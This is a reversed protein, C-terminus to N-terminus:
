THFNKSKYLTAYIIANLLPYISIIMPIIWYLHNYYEQTFSFFGLQLNVCYIILLLQVFILTALLISVSSNYSAINKKYPNLAYIITTIAPIILAVALGIIFYKVSFNYYSEANGNMIAFTAALIAVILSFSIWNRVMKIKNTQVYTKTNKTEKVLKTHVRVDLGQKKFDNVLKEYGPKEQNKNIFDQTDFVNDEVTEEPSEEHLESAKAINTLEHIREKHYTDTYLPHLVTYNPESEYLKTYKPQEDQTAVMNPERPQIERSDSTTEEITEDFSNDEPIDENADSTVASYDFVENEDNYNTEYENDQNDESDFANSTIDAEDTNKNIEEGFSLYSPTLDSNDEENAFSEEENTSQQSNDDFAYVDRKDEEQKNDNFPEELIQEDNNIEPKSESLGDIKSYPESSSEQESNSDFYSKNSLYSEIDLNYDDVLEPTEPKQTSETKGIENKEEDSMSLYNKAFQELFANGLYASAQENESSEELEKIKSDVQDEPQQYHGLLAMIDDNQSEHESDATNADKSVNEDSKEDSWLVFQNNATEDITPLPTTLESQEKNSAPESNDTDWSVVQVDEKNNAEQNPAPSLSDGLEDKQEKNSLEDVNYNVNNEEPVEEWILNDIIQRSRLWDSQNSKYTEIGLDTLKYYHRKGGIESDVWYSSILGQSELRKLCSYLTPQKLEYLGRSKKAVDDLIEYGYKDGDFLTKLIITDIHGRILDSDIGSRPVIKRIIKSIYLKIYIYFSTLYKQRKNSLIKLWDLLDVIISISRM